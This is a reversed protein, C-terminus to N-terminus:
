RLMERGPHAGAGAVLLTGAHVVAVAAGFSIALHSADQVLGGIGRHLGLTRDEGDHIAPEDRPEAMGLGDAGDGMAQATQDPLHEM